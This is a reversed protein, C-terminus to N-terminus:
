KDIKLLVIEDWIQIFNQILETTYETLDYFVRYDQPLLM